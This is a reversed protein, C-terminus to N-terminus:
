PAQEQYVKIVASNDETGWGAAIARALLDHHVTTLPLYARGDALMLGVDKAHQALRAESTSDANVM